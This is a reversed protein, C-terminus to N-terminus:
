SRALGVIPRSAFPSLTRHKKLHPFPIRSTKQITFYSCGEGCGIPLYHIFTSRTHFYHIIYHSVSSCRFAFQIFEVLNCGHFTNENHHIIAHICISITNNKILLKSYVPAVDREYIRSSKAHFVFFPTQEFVVIASYLFYVEM